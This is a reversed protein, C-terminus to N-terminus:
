EWRIMGMGVWEWELVANGNGNEGDGRNGNGYGNGAAVIYLSAKLLSIHINHLSNLVFYSTVASANNILSVV